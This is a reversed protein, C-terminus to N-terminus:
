NGVILDAVIKILRSDTKRNGKPRNFAWRKGSISTHPLPADERTLFISQLM